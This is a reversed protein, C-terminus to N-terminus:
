QAGGLYRSPNGARVEREGFGKTLLCRFDNM